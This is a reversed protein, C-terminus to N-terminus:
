TVAKEDGNEVEHLSLYKNCIPCNLWYKSNYRDDDHQADSRDCRVVTQCNACKGTYKPIVPITGQCLIEITM